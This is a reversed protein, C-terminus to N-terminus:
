RKILTMKHVFNSTYPTLREGMIPQVLKPSILRGVYWGFHAFCHSGAKESPPAHFNIVSETETKKQQLLSM